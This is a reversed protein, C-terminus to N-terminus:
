ILSGTLDLDDYLRLILFNDPNRDHTRSCGFQDALCGHHHVSLQRCVCHLVEDRSMRSKRFRNVFSQQLGCTLRNVASYHFVECLLYTRLKKISISLAKIIYHPFLM